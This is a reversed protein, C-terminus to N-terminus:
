NEKLVLKTIYDEISQVVQDFFQFDAVCQASEKGGWIQDCSINMAKRAIHIMNIAPVQEILDKSVGVFCLSRKSCDLFYLVITGLRDNIDHIIAKQMADVPVGKIVKIYINTDFVERVSPNINKITEIYLKNAYFKLEKDKEKIKKIYDSIESIYRDEKARIFSQAKGRTLAEIRRIGSGISSEKVIKLIGIESTSRVHSGGCLEISKAFSVVRVEDDYKEGFLAMAGKILAADKQLMQIDVRTNSWIISNVEEEIEYLEFKTLQKNHSFDFRLRDEAVLSGKQVVHKGFLKRLVFHLIHTASHAVELSTRREQDVSSFCNDDNIEGSILICIHAHIVGLNKKTDVVQLKCDNVMIDGIDGLQGGSEAYFPTKDLIVTFKEKPTIKKYEDITYLVESDKIIAVIKCSVNNSNIFKTKGFDTLIKFWITEITQDGSGVWANKAQQKQVQMAYLFAAEDVKINKEKLVDATIDLPLGYTDYLKFANEGPFLTGFKMSGLMHNLIQLGNELTSIFNIEETRLVHIINDSAYSLEPYAVGMTKKLTPFLECLIPDKCGMQYAFRIARRIIRRLVYGRGQNSPMVGDAILFGAARLHDTIIKHATRNDCNGSIRQSEMILQQFLDIDYNDFVGQMVASIRELGMGTDIGLNPLCTDYGNKDRSYQMFVLNWIEVFRDSDDAQFALVDSPKNDYFIESCPGRPGVEGMSWFNDNNKIRIIQDDPLNAIKKWLDVAEDDTYYVTVYLRYKPLSLEETIFKWALCIAEGKDGDISFNGLMEFFTHHRNTYGVNELDNHKGGARLCKQVSAMSNFDPNKNALFYDKFQVMGATTFLLTPDDKPVISSSPIIAHDNKAFFNLFLNRIEDLEIM